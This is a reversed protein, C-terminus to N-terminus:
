PELPLDRELFVISEFITDTPRDLVRRKEVHKICWGELGLDNLKDELNQTQYTVVNKPNLTLAAGLSFLIKDQVVVVKFEKMKKAHNEPTDKPYQKKNMTKEAAPVVVAVRLLCQPCFEKGPILDAGCSDCFHKTM